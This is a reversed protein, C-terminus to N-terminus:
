LYHVILSMPAVARDGEIDFGRQRFFDFRDPFATEIREAGHTEGFSAASRMLTDFLFASEADPAASLLDAGESTRFSLLYLTKEELRVAVAGLEKQGETMLLLRADGSIDLASLRRAEEERDAMPSIQLM